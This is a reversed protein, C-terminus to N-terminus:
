SENFSSKELFTCSVCVQIRDHSSLLHHPLHLTTMALPSRQKEQGDCICKVIAYLLCLVPM